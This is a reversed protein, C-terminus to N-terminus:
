SSMLRLVAEEHVRVGAGAAPGALHRALVPVVRPGTHVPPADVFDGGPSPLPLAGRPHRCDSGVVERDRAKVALRGDAGELARRFGDPLAGVADDEDVVALARLAM